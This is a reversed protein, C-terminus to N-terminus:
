SSAPRPAGNKPVGCSLPISKLSWFPACTSKRGRDPENVTLENYAQLLGDVRNDRGPFVPAVLIVHFVLSTPAGQPSIKGSESVAITIACKSSEISM